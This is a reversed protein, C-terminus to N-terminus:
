GSIIAQVKNAFAGLQFPKTMVQMGEGVLSGGATSSESYGTIFLVKLDLRKKRAAEALQRGNIGGPLGVDSVLLDIRSRSEMIDLGSAGDGAALVTYGIDELLDVVVMRLDPEDEVVLVVADGPNVMPESPAVLSGAEAMPQAADSCRPLWVTVTTGKGVTSRLLVKGGSQHVFGHVMSLGLGTGEGLPKTTFFPDFARALSAPTMGIGTDTISLTAYDGRPLDPEDGAEALCDPAVMNVTEIILCGGDPMADRANIILNLFANELQNPDCLVPHLESALRTEVQVAPGMTNRFLEKMGLVLLNMDLSKPNLTQRRSFALLRHTLAAARATSTLAAKIYRELGDLGEQKMRRSITELNGSIAGLMNNFDHAIGGTLQGIADMKQSQRLAEEIQERDVAEARLAEVLHTLTETREAVRIELTENAQRM